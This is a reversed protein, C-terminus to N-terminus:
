LNVRVSIIMLRKLKGTLGAVGRETSDTTYAFYFLLADEVVQNMEEVTCPVDKLDRRWFDYGYWGYIIWVIKSGYLGLKYAQYHLLVVLSLIYNSEKFKPLAMSLDCERFM